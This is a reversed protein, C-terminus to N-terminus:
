PTLRRGHGSRSAYPNRWWGARRGTRGYPTFSSAGRPTFPRFVIGDLKVRALAGPIFAIGIGFQMLMLATQFHEVTAIIRVNVELTDLM